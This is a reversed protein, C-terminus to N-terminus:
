PLPPPPSSYVIWPSPSGPLVVPSWRTPTAPTVLWLSPTTSQRSPAPPSQRLLRINDSTCLPPPSPSAHLQPRAHHLRLHLRRRQHQAHHPHRPRAHCPSPRQPRPHCQNPRRPRTHRPRPRRPRAHCPSSYDLKPMLMIMKFFYNEFQM